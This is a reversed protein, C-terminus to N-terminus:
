KQYKTDWQKNIIANMYEHMCEHECVFVHYALQRFGSSNGIETASKTRFLNKGHACLVNKLWVNFSLIDRCTIDWKSCQCRPMLSLDSGGPGFKRFKLYCCSFQTPHQGDEALLVQTHQAMDSWCFTKWPSQCMKILWHTCAWVCACLRGKERVRKCMYVCVYLCVYIGADWGPCQFGKYFVYTIYCGERHALILCM